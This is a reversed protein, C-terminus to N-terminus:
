VDDGLSVGHVAPREPGLGGVRFVCSFSVGWLCCGDHRTDKHEKRSQTLLRRITRSLLLLTLVHSCCLCVWRHEMLGIQRFCYLRLLSMAKELNAHLVISSSFSNM